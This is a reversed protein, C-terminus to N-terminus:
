FSSPSIVVEGEWSASTATTDEGSSPQGSIGVTWTGENDTTDLDAQFWGVGEESQVVTGTPDGTPNVWTYSVPTQGQIEYQFAVIDPNVVTEGDVATFPQKTYLRITAGAIYNYSQDEEYDQDSSAFSNTVAGVVTGPHSPTVVLLQWGDAIMKATTGYQERDVTLVNDVENTVEVIELNSSLPQEGDPWAQVFFPTAPWAESPAAATLSTGSDEPSPAVTVTSTITV